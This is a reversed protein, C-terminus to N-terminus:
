GWVRRALEAEKEMKKLMKEREREEIVQRMANLGSDSSLGILWDSKVDFLKSLMALTELSPERFGSEYNAYTSQAIKIAKAVDNQSAGLYERAKKLRSPFVETFM